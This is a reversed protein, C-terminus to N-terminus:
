FHIFSPPLTVEEEASGEAVQLMQVGLQAEPEVRDGVDAEVPGGVPNHGLGEGGLLGFELRQRGAGEIGQDLQLPADAMIPEHRNAAVIVAYGVSRASRNLHMLQSVLDADQIAAAEYRAMGDHFTAFLVQSIRSMASAIPRSPASM